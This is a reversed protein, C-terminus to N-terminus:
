ARYLGAYFGNKELLESHNGKEILKGDNMVLIYDADKITSLRHAIIFSTRGEMLKAFAAGVKRESLTDINSTAEDLILMPPKKLMVRTICILQKQGASLVGGSDDVATDYGKELRKIFSHAGTLKAAAIIEDQSSEGGYDINEFITGSFIFTDQLVMGFNERVSVRSVKATDHGDVTIVGSDPDYFRMILNILTTKGCGTPGVVAIRRGPFAEFTIDKLVTKEPSYGFVIHEFGAAGDTVVLPQNATEPEIPMDLLAFVRKASAISTQLESIVATIENFPKTYQNAYTLFAAVTGITIGGSIALTLGIVGTFVYVLNNVFRTVPNVAAAYLQAKFTVGRLEGSVATFKRFSREEYSFAKVLKQNRMAEEVIGSLKGRLKAQSAFTRKSRGTIIYAALLSLPTIIIVTLALRIDLFLMVAITGVITMIGTLFSAAGQFLGDSVYECDASVRSVLDGKSVSDFFSVSLHQIKEELDNRLNFATNYAIKNAILGLIYMAAAATLVLAGCLLASKGAHAFDVNGVGAIEDIARGIIVPVAIQAGSSIAATLVAFAFLAKGGKIYTLIRKLITM